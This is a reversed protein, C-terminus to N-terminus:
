VRELETCQGQLIVCGQEAALLRAEAVLRSKGMGAGGRIVVTHHQGEAVQELHYQITALPQTRGVLIPCLASQM